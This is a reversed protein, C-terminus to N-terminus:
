GWGMGDGMRKRQFDGPQTPAGWKDVGHSFERVLEVGVRSEECQFALM